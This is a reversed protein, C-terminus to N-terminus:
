PEFDKLTYLGYRNLDRNEIRKFICGFKSNSSRITTRTKIKEPVEMSNEMKCEWWCNVFTRTEGCRQWCKSNPKKNTKYYSHWHTHIFHYRRHIKRIIVLTSYRKLYNNDM